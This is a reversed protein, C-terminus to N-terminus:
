FISIFIKKASYLQRNQLFNSIVQCRLYIWFTWRIWLPQISDIFSIFSECFSEQCDRCNTLMIYEKLDAYYWANWDQYGWINTRLELNLKWKSERQRDYNVRKDFLLLNCILNEPAVCHRCHWSHRLVTIDCYRFFINIRAFKRRVRGSLLTALLFLHSNPLNFPLAGHVNSKIKIFESFQIVWQFYFHKCTWCIFHRYSGLM